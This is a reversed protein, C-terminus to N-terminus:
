GYVVEEFLSHSTMHITFTPRESYECIGAAYVKGEETKIGNTWHLEAKGYGYVTGYWEDVNFILYDAWSNFRYFGALVLANRGSTNIVNYFHRPTAPAAVVGGPFIFYITYIFGFPVTPLTISLVSSYRTQHGRM